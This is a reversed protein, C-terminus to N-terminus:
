DIRIGRDHVEKQRAYEEIYYGVNKYIDFQYEGQKSDILLKADLVGNTDYTIHGSVTNHLTTELDIDIKGSFMVTSAEGMNEETEDESFHFIKTNEVITDIIINNFKLQFKEGESVDILYSVDIKVPKGVAVFVSNMSDGFDYEDPYLIEEAVIRIEKPQSDQIKDTEPLNNQDEEIKPNSSTQESKQSIIKEIEVNNESVNINNDSNTHNIYIYAGLLVLAMLFSIAYFNKSIHTNKM